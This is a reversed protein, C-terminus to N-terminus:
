SFTTYENFAHIESNRSVDLYNQSSELESGVFSNSTESSPWSNLYILEEEPFNEILFSNIKKNTNGPVRIRHM